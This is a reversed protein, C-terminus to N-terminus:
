FYRQKRYAQVILHIDPDLGKYYHVEGLEPVGVVDAFATEKRKYWRQVQIISARRIPGPVTSAYGWTGTISVGRPIGSAFSSYNGNPNLKIYEKPTSNLPYLIYDSTALTTEYVGDGNTDLKLSTLTILDPICLPSATGDFYKTTTVSDFSRNCFKDILDKTQGILAQLIDDSEGGPINLERKVEELTCYSPGGQVVTIFGALAPDSITTGVYPVLTYLYVGATPFTTALPITYYCTGASADIWTCAADILFTTPTLPSWVKLKVSYGSLNRAAGASDKITFNLNYGFSGAVITYNDSM